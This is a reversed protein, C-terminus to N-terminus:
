YEFPIMGTEINYVHSWGNSLNLRPTLYIDTIKYNIGYKLTVDQIIDCEIYLPSLVINYTNLTENCIQLRIFLTFKGISNEDSPIDLGCTICVPALVEFPNFTKTFISSLKYIECRCLLDDFKFTYSRTGKGLGYITLTNFKVILEITNTIYYIVSYNYLSRWEVGNFVLIVVM